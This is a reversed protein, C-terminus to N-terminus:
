YDVWADLRGQPGPFTIPQVRQKSQPWMRRLIVFYEDCRKPDPFGSYNDTVKSLEVFLHVFEDVQFPALVSVHSAWRIGFSMEEKRLLDRVSNICMSAEHEVYEVLTDGDEEEEHFKMFLRLRKAFLPRLKALAVFEDMNRCKRWNEKLRRVEDPTLFRPRDDPKLLRVKELVDRVAEIARNRPPASYIHDRFSM